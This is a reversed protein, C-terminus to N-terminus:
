CCRLSVKVLETCGPASLLSLKDVQIRPYKTCMSNTTVKVIVCVSFLSFQITVIGGGCFALHLSLPIM